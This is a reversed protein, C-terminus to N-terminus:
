YVFVFIYSTNLYKNAINKQCIQNIIDDVNYAEYNNDNFVYDPERITKNGKVITVLNFNHIEYNQNIIETNQSVNIEINKKSFTNVSKGNFIIPLEIICNAICKEYLDFETKADFLYIHEM